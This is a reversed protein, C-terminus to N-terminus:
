GLFTSSYTLGFGIHKTIESMIAIYPSMDQRPWGVAWKVADDRTGKWTSPIGSGDGFFIFDLLGREALLAMEKYMGIDPFVKHSWSGPISWRGELHTWSLDYGIHMKKPM